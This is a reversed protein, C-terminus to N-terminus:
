GPHAPTAAAARRMSLSREVEEDAVCLGGGSASVSKWIRQVFCGPLGEGWVVDAAFFFFFCVCFFDFFIDETVAAAASFFFQKASGCVAVPLSPAPITQSTNQMCWPWWLFLFM